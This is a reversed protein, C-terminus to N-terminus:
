SGVETWIAVRLEVVYVIGAAPFAQHIQEEAHIETM